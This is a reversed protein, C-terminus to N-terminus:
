EDLLYLIGILGIACTVSATVAFAFIHQNFQINTRTSLIKDALDFRGNRAFIVAITNKITEIIYVMTTGLFVCGSAISTVAIVDTVSADTAKIFAAAGIIGAGVLGAAILQPRSISGIANM